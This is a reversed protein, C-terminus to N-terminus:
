VSLEALDECETMIEQPAQEAASEQVKVCIVGNGDDGNYDDGPAIKKKVCFAIVTATVILVFVGISGLVLGTIKANSLGPQSTRCFGAPATTICSSNFPPPTGKFLDKVEPLTWSSPYRNM